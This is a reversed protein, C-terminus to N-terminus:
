ARDLDGGGRKLGFKIFSVLQYVINQLSYDTKEKTKPTTQGYGPMDPAICRYGLSSFVNLQPTWTEALGPWGHIFILLPGKGPGAALYSLTKEVYNEKRTWEHRTIPPTTTSM